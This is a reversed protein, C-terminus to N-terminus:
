ILYQRLDINPADVFKSLRFERLEVSPKVCRAMDASVRGTGRGIGFGLSSFGSAL